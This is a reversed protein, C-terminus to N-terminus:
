EKEEAIKTHQHRNRDFQSPKEKRVSKRRREEEEEERSNEKKKKQRKKKKKKELNIFYNKM